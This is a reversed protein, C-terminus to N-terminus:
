KTESDLSLEPRNALRSPHGGNELFARWSDISLCLAELNLRQHMRPYTALNDKALKFLAVAPGTRQKSVHVFGGALQILGKYFRGEPGYRDKLWLQELVDHAEFYDGRNFRVFFGWYYPDLGPPATQTLAAEVRRGKKTM